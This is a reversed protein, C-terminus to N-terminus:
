QSQHRTQDSSTRRVHIRADAVATPSSLTLTAAHAFTPPPPDDPVSAGPALIGAVPNGAADTLFVPTPSLTNLFDTTGGGTADGFTTSISSTAVDFMVTLPIM